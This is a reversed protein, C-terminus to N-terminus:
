VKNLARSVVSDSSHSVPCIHNSQSSSYISNSPSLSDFIPAMGHLVPLSPLPPLPLEPHGSGDSSVKLGHCDADQSLVADADCFRLYHPNTLFSPDLKWLDICPWFSIHLSISGWICFPPYFHLRTKTHHTFLSLSQYLPPSLLFLSNGSCPTTPLACFYRMALTHINLPQPPAPRSSAPDSCWHVASLHCALPLPRTLPAPLSSLPSWCATLSGAPGVHKPSTVCVSPAFHNM